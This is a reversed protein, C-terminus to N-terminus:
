FCKKVFTFYSIRKKSKKDASNYNPNYYPDSTKEFYASRIGYYYDFAVAQVNFVENELIDVTETSNYIKDKTTQGKEKKIWAGAYIIPPCSMFRNPNIYDKLGKYWFFADVHLQIENKM